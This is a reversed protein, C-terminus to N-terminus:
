PAHAATLQELPAANVARKLAQHGLRVKLTPHEKELKRLVALYKANAAHDSTFEGPEVDHEWGWATHSADGTILVPGEPTRVLFSLHGPTHGPTHLAWVMQDGFVDLVNVFPDPEAGFAFERLPAHGEFLDNTLSQVFLNLFSRASAEGPGTYIPTGRPVDPMGLVHDGHLHTLFVGDPKLQQDRLWVGLPHKIQMRSAGMARAALGRLVANDPDDRLATEVGTDILFTGHTPHRLVHFYIEVPELGDELGAKKATEHKLNILGSRDISWEASTVTELQVTGPADMLAVMEASPRPVGFDRAPEVPHSTTACAATAFAVALALPAPSTLKHM